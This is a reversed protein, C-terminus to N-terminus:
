TIPHSHVHVVGHHDHQEEKIAIPIMNLKGHRVGREAMMMDAFERVKSIPGRLLAVELCNDHDMHVHLSSLNLDHHHHHADTLRSALEMEHHNYVYSLIAVCYGDESSEKLREAELSKRILDRMAESRNTYGRENIFEDFQAALGSELSITIREM